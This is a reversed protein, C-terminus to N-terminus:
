PIVSHEKKLNRDEPIYCLASKKFDVSTESSCIAEMKLIYSYAPCSVLTFAHSLCLLRSVPCKDAEVRINRSEGAVERGEV